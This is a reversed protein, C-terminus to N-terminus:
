YEYIHNFTEVYTRLHTTQINSDAVYFYLFIEFNARVSGSIILNHELNHKSLLFRNMRQM